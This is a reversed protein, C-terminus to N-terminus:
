QALRGIIVADNISHRKKSKVKFIQGKGPYDGLSVDLYLLLVVDGVQLNSVDDLKFANFITAPKKDGTQGLIQVDATKNSNSRIVRGLASVNVSAAANLTMAGLLNSWDNTPSGNKTAM